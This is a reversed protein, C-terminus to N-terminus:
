QKVANIFKRIPNTYITHDEPPPAPVPKEEPMVKKLIKKGTGQSEQQKLLRRAKLRKLAEFHAPTPNGDKDYDSDELMESIYKIISIM